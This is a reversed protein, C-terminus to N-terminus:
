EKHILKSKKHKRGFYKNTEYFFVLKASFKFGFYDIQTAYQCM